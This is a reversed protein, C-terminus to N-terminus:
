GVTKFTNFEASLEFYGIFNLLDLDELNPPQGYQMKAQM